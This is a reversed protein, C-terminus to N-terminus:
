LFHCPFPPLQPPNYPITSTPSFKFNSVRIVNHASSIKFIFFRCCTHNLFISARALPLVIIVIYIYIYTYRRFASVLSYFLYINLILFQFLACTDDFLFLVSLFISPSASCCFQFLIHQCIRLWSNSVWWSLIPRCLLLFLLRIYTRSHFIVPVFM